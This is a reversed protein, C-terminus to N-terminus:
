ASRETVQLWQVSRKPLVPSTKNADHKRKGTHFCDGVGRPHHLEIRSGGVFIGTDNSCGRRCDQDNHDFNTQEGRQESEGHMREASQLNDIAVDVGWIRLAHAIVHQTVHALHKNAARKAGRRTVCETKEDTDNETEQKERGRVGRNDIKDRYLEEHRAVALERVNELTEVFPAYWARSHQESSEDWHQEHDHDFSM